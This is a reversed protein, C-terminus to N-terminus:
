SLAALDVEANIGFASSSANNLVVFRWCVREDIDGDIRIGRVMVLLTRDLGSEVGGEEWVSLVPTQALDDWSHEDRKVIRAMCWCLDDAAISAEGM